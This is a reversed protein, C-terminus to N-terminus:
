MEDYICNDIMHELDALYDDLFGNDVDHMAALLSQELDAYRNYHGARKWIEHSQPHYCVERILEMDTSKKM